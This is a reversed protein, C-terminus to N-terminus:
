EIKKIKSSPIEEGKCIQKFIQFKREFNLRFILDNLLHKRSNKYTNIFYDSIFIELISEIQSGFRLIEGCNRSFEDFQNQM